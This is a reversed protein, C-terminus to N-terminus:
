AIEGFEVVPEKGDIGEDITLTCVGAEEDWETSISKWKLRARMAWPKIRDGAADLFRAECTWRGDKVFAIWSHITWSPLPPTSPEAAEPPSITEDGGIIPLRSLISPAAARQPAAGPLEQQVDPPLLSAAETVVPPSVPPMVPDLQVAIVEERGFLLGLIAPVGTSTLYWLSVALVAYLVLFVRRLYWPRVSVEAEKLDPAYTSRYLGFFKRDHRLGTETKVLVGKPYGDYTWRSFRGKGGGWGRELKIIIYIESLGALDRNLQSVQQTALIVDVAYHRHLTYFDHLAPTLRGKGYALHAEDWVFLPGVGDVNVLDEAWAELNSLSAHPLTAGTEQGVVHIHGITDPYDREIRELIAPVNTVVHRPAVGVREPLGRRAPMARKGRAAEVIKEILMLSKGAGPKGVLLSMPM